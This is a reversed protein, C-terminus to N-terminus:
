GFILIATHEVTAVNGEDNCVLTAHGTLKHRCSEAAASVAERYKIADELRGADKARKLFVPSINGDDARM